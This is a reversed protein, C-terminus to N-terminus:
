RLTAKPLYLVPDLAFSVASDSPFYYMQSHTNEKRLLIANNYGYFGVTLTNFRGGYISIKKLSLIHHNNLVSLTLQIIPRAINYM